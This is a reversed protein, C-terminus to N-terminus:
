FWVQEKASEISEVVSSRKQMTEILRSKDDFGRFHVPSLRQIESSFSGDNQSTMRPYSGTRM